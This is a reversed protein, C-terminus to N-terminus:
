LVGTNQLLESQNKLPHSKMFSISDIKNKNTKYNLNVNGKPNEDQSRNATTDIPSPFRKCHGSKRAPQKM